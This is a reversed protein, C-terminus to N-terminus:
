LGIEVTPILRAKILLFVLVDIKQAQISYVNFVTM